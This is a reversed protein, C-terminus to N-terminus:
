YQMAITMLEDDLSAFLRCQREDYVVSIVLQSRRSVSLAAPGAGRDPKGRRRGSQGLWLGDPLYNLTCGRHDKSVPDALVVPRGLPAPLRAGAEEDQEKVHIRIGNAAIKM